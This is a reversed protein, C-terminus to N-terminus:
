ETVFTTYLLVLLSSFIFIINVELQAGAREAKISVSRVERGAIDIQSLGPPLWAFPPRCTTGVCPTWSPASPIIAAASATDDTDEELSSVAAAGGGDDGGDDDGASGYAASGGAGGEAGGGYRAAALGCFYRVYRQQSRHAVGMGRVSRFIEMVTSAMERPHALPAADEGAARALAYRKAAMLALFCSVVVGTRGKGAVCHVVVVNRDDIALWAALANVLHWLLRLPPPEHDPFPAMLVRNHFHRCDYERESVNFVLYRGFHHEDLFRSVETIPTRYMAEIGNSPLGMAIVQPTVYTLDLDFGTEDVYRNRTGSVKARLRNLM